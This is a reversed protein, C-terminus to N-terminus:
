IVKILMKIAAEYINEGRCSINYECIENHWAEISENHFRNNPDDISHVVHGIPSDWEPSDITYIIMPWSEDSHDDKISITFDIDYLNFSKTEENVDVTVITENHTNKATIKM